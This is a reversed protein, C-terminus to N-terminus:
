TNLGGWFYFPAPTTRTGLQSQLQLFLSMLLMSVGPDVIVRYGSGCSGCARLSTFLMAVASPLEATCTAVSWSNM